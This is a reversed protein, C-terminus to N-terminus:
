VQTYNSIANTSHVLYVIYPELHYLFLRTWLSSVLSACYHQLKLVLSQIM